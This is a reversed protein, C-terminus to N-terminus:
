ANEAGNVMGLVGDETCDTEALPQEMIGLVEDERMVAVGDGIEVGSFRNFIVTDGVSVGMPAIKGDSLIRGNGVALVKAMLCSEQSTDPMYLGSSTKQPRDIKQIVIRDHLPKISQM